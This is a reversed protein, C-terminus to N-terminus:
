GVSPSTVSSQDCQSLGELGVGFGLSERVVKVEPDSARGGLVLVTRRGVLSDLQVRVQIVLGDLVALDLSV